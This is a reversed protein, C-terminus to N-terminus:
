MLEVVSVSCGEVMAFQQVRIWRRTNRRFLMSSLLAAVGWERAYAGLLIWRMTRIRGPAVTTRCPAM